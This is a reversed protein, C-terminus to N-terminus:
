KKHLNTFSLSAEKALEIRIQNREIKLIEYVLVNDRWTKVKGTRQKNGSIKIRFFIKTERLTTRIQKTM